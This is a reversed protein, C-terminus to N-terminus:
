KNIKIQKFFNFVKKGYACNEDSRLAFYKVGELTIGSSFFSGNKEFGKRLNIVEEYSL